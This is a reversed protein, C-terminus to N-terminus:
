FISRQNCVLVIGIVVYNYIAYSIWQSENYASPVNRVTYTLYVGAIINVVMYGVYISNFKGFSCKQYTDFYLVTGNAAFNTTTVSEALPSNNPLTTWIALGAIWVIL